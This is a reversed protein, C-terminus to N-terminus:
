NTIVTVKWEFTRGTEMALGDSKQDGESATSPTFGPLQGAVSGSATKLSTVNAVTVFPGNKTKFVDSTSGPESVSWRSTRMNFAIAFPKEPKEGNSTTVCNLNVSTRSASGALTPTFSMLLTVFFIAKWPAVSIM